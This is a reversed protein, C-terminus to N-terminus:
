PNELPLGQEVLSAFLAAGLPLIEDNFDYRPQHLGCPGGQGLRLYAGPRAQLMFAFDESGMSPPLEDDVHEAGVLWRSVRVAFDAERASNITAPYLRQYDVKASAGFGLAVSEVMRTLREELLQQVEPKFSRVTGTLQALEPIVSFAGADGAQMACLSVVAQDVPSINRSVLSQVATIIHGAILVPDVSLHPHAGHGGRGQINIQVRDAAAMMAGRNLGIKGPPLHPWNHMAYIAEVPFRDFLGDAIMERAGGYGEEGPQFVLVASGTFRRTQALYRAAGVLMACHGDHGCAHMLGPTGSKWAFDNQERLPLADMDARLGLLRASGAPTGPQGHVVAVLGTRGIGEHIEDVGCARLAQVLRAGTRREEFGLEPMAHLERRLAVLEGRGELLRQYTGSAASTVASTLATM